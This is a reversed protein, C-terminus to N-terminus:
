MASFSKLFAENEKEMDGIYMMFLLVIRDDVKAVCYHQCVSIGMYVEEGYYHEFSRGGIVATGEDSWSMKGEFSEAVQEEIEARLEEMCEDVSGDWQQVALFITTGLFSPNIVVFEWDTEGESDEPLDDDGSIDDLEGFFEEVDQFEFGEPLELSMGLWKSEWSTGNVVGQVYSEDSVEGFTGDSADGVTQGDDKAATDTSATIRLEMGPYILDPDRILERNWAVIDTYRAGDGLFREAIKWLCDGKQVEYVNEVAYAQGKGCIRNAARCLISRRLKPMM